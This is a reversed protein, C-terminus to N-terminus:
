RAAPRLQGPDHRLRFLCRRAARGLDGQGAQVRPTLPLLGRVDDRSRRLYAQLAIVVNDYGDERLSRYLDITADTTTSDEMDLEVALSRARADDAIARVNEACLAPDLKLGLATM